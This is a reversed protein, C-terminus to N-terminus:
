GAPVLVGVRGDVVYRLQVAAGPALWGRGSVVAGAQGARGNGGRLEVQDIVVGNVLVEVQSDALGAFEGQVVRGGGRSTISLGPTVLPDSAAAAPGSANGAPDVQTAIVDVAGAPLGDFAAQWAGAGDAVVTAARGAATVTVAAGPEAVGAVIPFVRGGATDVRSIVPPDAHTDAPPPPPSPPPTSGGSAGSTGGAAGTSANPGDGAAAADPTEADGGRGPDTPGAIPAPGTDRPAGPDASRGAGPNADDTDASPPAAVATPSEAVLEATGGSVPLIAGATIAAAVLLSGIGSAAAIGGIGAAATGGAVGAGAAGAAIGAAGGAAGAGAGAATGAAGTAATASTASASAVGTATGAAAGSTGAGTTASGAALAVAGGAAGVALDAGPAGQQLWATYTSAGTVGAALPLLVLALRAGVDRAEAAVITCKACRDLHADVKGTDRAGLRGRTYAGLRDITWRCEPDDATRLHATIWAQRLGERARYALAATSNASMGVLPAIEAPSMQEVESYWLVEQWRTPLSRFAQATLSRDLADLSAAESSSPDEFSELTELTTEHRARGWGAATHRITTFLYPRFAGTPGGGKRIADFIRTFSEAVLDDADLTSFSRAVTRGASSHRRWLEAFADDDGHRAREVLASDAIAQDNPM